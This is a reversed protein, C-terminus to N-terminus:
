ILITHLKLAVGGRGRRMDGRLECSCILMNLYVSQTCHCQVFLSGANKWVWKTPDIPSHMRNPHVFESATLRHWRQSGELIRYLTHKPKTSPKGDHAPSYVHYSTDTYHRPRFEVFRTRCIAM